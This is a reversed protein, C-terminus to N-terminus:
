QPDALLTLAFVRRFRSHAETPSEEVLEDVLIARREELRVDHEDRPESVVQVSASDAVGVTLSGEVHVDSKDLMANERHSKTRRKVQEGFLDRGLFNDHPTGVELVGSLVEDVDLIGSPTALDVRDELENSFLEVFPSL